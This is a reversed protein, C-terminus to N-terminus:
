AAVLHVIPPERAACAWDRVTDLGTMLATTEGAAVFTKYVPPLLSTTTVTELGFGYGTVIVATLRGASVFYAVPYVVFERVVVFAPQRAEVGLPTTQFWEVVM